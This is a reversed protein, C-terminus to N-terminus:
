AGFAGNIAGSTVEGEDEETFPLDTVGIGWATSAVALSAILFSVSSTVEARFCSAMTWDSNVCIFFRNSEISLLSSLITEKQLREASGLLAIPAGIGTFRGVFGNSEGLGIEEFRERPYLELM